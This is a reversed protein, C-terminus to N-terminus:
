ERGDNRSGMEVVRYEASEWDGGLTQLCWIMEDAQQRSYIPKPEGKLFIDPAGNSYTVPLYKESEQTKIEVKYSM